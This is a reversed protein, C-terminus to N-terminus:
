IRSFEKDRIQSVINAYGAEDVKFGSQLKSLYNGGYSLFSANNTIRAM